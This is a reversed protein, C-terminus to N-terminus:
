ESSLLRKRCNACLTAGRKDVENVTGAAYLVCRNNPCHALGRLLGMQHVVESLLRRVLLDHRLETSGMEPRFRAVSILASRTSRDSEGFVFPVEPVFLDVETLALVAEWKHDRHEEVRKLISSAHYQDRTPNFAYKPLPLAEGVEVRRGFLSSLPESLPAFISTELPGVAILTVPADPGPSPEGAPEIDPTLPLDPLPFVASPIATGPFPRRRSRSAAREPESKSGVSSDGM